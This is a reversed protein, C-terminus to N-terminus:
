GGGLLAERVADIAAHAFAPVMLNGSRRWAFSLPVGVTMHLLLLAPLAALRPGSVQVIPLHWVGWLASVFLASRWRHSRRQALHTDIVGRFTVEEIAFCAPVFLALARLGVSIRAPPPHAVLHRRTLAMLVMWAIGIAGAILLCRAIERALGPSRGRVAYAAAGAGIIAAAGWLAPLPQRAILARATLYAPAVALLAALAAWRWDFRVAPADRLWAGRVPRHAIVAQFALTLPVGALVYANADLQFAFGLAMWVAVLLTAEVYARM